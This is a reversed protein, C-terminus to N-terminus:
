GYGLRHRWGQLLGFWRAAAVRFRFVAQNEALEIRAHDDVMEVIFALRKVYQSEATDSLDTGFALAAVQFQDQALGGHAHGV